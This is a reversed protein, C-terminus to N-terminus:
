PSTASGMAHVEAFAVIQGWLRQLGSRRNQTLAAGFPATLLPQDNRRELVEVPFRGSCSECLLAGMGKVVMSDSDCSFVCRGQSLAGQFWLKSLCGEVRNADIRQAPPFDPLRRARDVVWLLRSQSGKISLIQEM